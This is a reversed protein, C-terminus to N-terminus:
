RVCSCRACPGRRCTSACRAPRSCWRTRADELLGRLVTAGTLRALAAAAAGTHPDPLAHDFGNMLLVPSGAAALRAALAALVSAAGAADAPLGAANFYGERLLLAEVASGDPAVWRYVPGVEDIEDGSGRWYVFSGLGFGALLQPLQAPHGFSDPVYGVTSVPGLAGLVRRGHLLNRVHAEGSPLLSDPQVYWPGAALRGARLGAELAPRREPRVALYDEVVIAQGDLLFRYGPDADLLDLVRDVADVLRARYAEFPRYWERDWHFHSVLVYRPPAAM